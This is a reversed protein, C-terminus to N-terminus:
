RVSGWLSLRGPPDPQFGSRSGMLASPPTLLACGSSEPCLARTCGGHSFAARSCRSEERLLIVLKRRGRNQAGPRLVGANVRRGNSEAVGGAGVPHFSAHAPEPSVFTQSVQRVSALPEIGRLVVADDCQGIVDGLRGWSTMMMATVLFVMTLTM